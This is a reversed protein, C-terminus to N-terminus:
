DKETRQRRRKGEGLEQIRWIKRRRRRTRINEGAVEEVKEM